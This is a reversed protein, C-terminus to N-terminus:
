KYYLVAHGRIPPSWLLDKDQFYMEKDINTPGEIELSKQIDPAHSYRRENEKDDDNPFIMLNNHNAKFLIDREKNLYESSEIGSASNTNIIGFGNKTTDGNNYTYSKVGFRVQNNFYIGSNPGYIQFDANMDLSGGIQFDRSNKGLTIAPWEYNRFDSFIEHTYNNNFGNFYTRIGDIIFNSRNIFTGGEGLYYNHPAYRYAPYEDYCKQSYLGKEGCKYKAYSTQGYCEIRDSESKTNECDSDTGLATFLKTRNDRCNCGSCEIGSYITESKKYDKEQCMEYDYMGQSSFGLATNIDSVNIGLLILSSISLAITILNLFKIM